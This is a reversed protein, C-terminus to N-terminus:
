HKVLVNLTELLLPSVSITFANTFYILLIQFFLQIFVEYVYYLFNFESCKEYLM